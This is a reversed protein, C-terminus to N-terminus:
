PRQQRLLRLSTELAPIDIQITRWLVDLDVHVYVSIALVRGLMDDLLLLIDRSSM